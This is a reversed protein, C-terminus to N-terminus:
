PNQMALREPERERSRALPEVYARAQMLVYARSQM